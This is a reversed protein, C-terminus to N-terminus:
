LQNKFMEEKDRLLLNGFFTLARLITQLLDKFYNEDM